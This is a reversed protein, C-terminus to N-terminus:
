RGGKQKRSEVLLYFREKAANYTIDEFGFEADSMGVLANSNNPKLDDSIRAIKARDDFVVFYDSGKVLVGSAEWREKKQKHRPLLDCIKSECVLKLTPMTPM